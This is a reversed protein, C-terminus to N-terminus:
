TVKMNLFNKLLTRLINILNTASNGFGPSNKKKKKDTKWLICIHVYHVGYYLM